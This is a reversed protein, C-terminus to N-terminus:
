DGPRICTRPPIEAAEGPYTDLQGSARPAPKMSRAGVYYEPFARGNAAQNKDAFAGPAIFVPLAARKDAPGPLQEIFHDKRETEPTFFDINAIDYLTARRFIPRGQRVFRRLTGREQEPLDFGKAGPDNAGEAYARGLGKQCAGAGNRLKAALDV